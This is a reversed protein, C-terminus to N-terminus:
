EEDPSSRAVESHKDDEDHEDENGQTASAEMERLRATSIDLSDLLPPLEIRSRALYPLLRFAAIPRDLVAGDLECIIYAGGRNRSLVVFPGLYRPRMKRNLSKEIATNRVLVLSGRQFDFDRIIAAQDRELQRAAELHATYVKAYIRELDEQRRALARARAGILDATSILSTPSPMLYTAEAVDLPLVPHCGTAAFFPSCGMRRRVTIRDAWLVHHVFHSWRAQDGEAAKFLAQRIDFHPREVIGNARSNYASVRIHHIGYKSALYDLAKIWPKGNDTVIEVVTGWRCLIDQFLWEGIARGSERRLARGEAYSITACRAHVFYKYGASIPLHMADGHFRVFISPPLPVSPPIVIQRLQRTQCLHCTSVYWHIDAKQHPWWFRETVLATTAYTGKHAVDDHAQRLVDLRRDPWIVLKDQTSPGRRWLRGDRQYFRFTYRLFLAFEVDSLSDPRQLTRLYDYVARVRDDERQTGPSRPISATPAPPPISTAQIFTPIPSFTSARLVPPLPNILHVLGNLRDIWDDDEDAPDYEDLPQPHRRSLGDPGHQAGPVHVLAFHFTLISVIWRNISASPAEDPNNLMGRIYRANVEVVLNRVGILYRKCARLARFLGYIELKAQSYAAEHENLTISGFRAFYHCIPHDPDCQALLYGIAIFSTDVALIVSASSTYDIPRLAPSHILANKLDDMARQQDDAWEFIAGKRTLQVLPWARKGFNQIFARAVGVTGLFARVDSLDRCPGWNVVKAYNSPEPVRGAYTCRHGVVSYEAAVLVSKLGSFTGGCYKM